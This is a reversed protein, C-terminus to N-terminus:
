VRQERVSLRHLRMRGVRRERGQEARHPRTRCGAPGARVSARPRISLSMYRVLCALACVISKGASAEWAHLNPLCGAVVMATTATMSSPPVHRLLAAKRQAALMARFHTLWFAYCANPIRYGSDIGALRANCDSLAFIDDLRSSTRRHHLYEICTCHHLENLGSLQAAHWSEGRAPDWPAPRMRSPTICSPASGAALIAGAWFWPEFRSTHLASPPRVCACRQSRNPYM